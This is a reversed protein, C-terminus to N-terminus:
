DPTKAVQEEFLKHICADKPYDAQTNNWEVLLQHREAATFLPLNSIHEQPNAVIGELLTQFHRLMRTITATKFLDTNYELGGRIVESIEKLELTLDFMSRGNHVEIPTLTLEPLEKALRPTNQLVFMVQFLASRSLDREPKLEEVVKEFPVDQHTYAGLAVQRVRGLLKQFPPNGGFNTRLVLTNVFFGILEETEVQSRGAIPTGIIIDEHESYRYLLTQFAALLTMFLTVDEQESLTKLGETLSKSLELSQYDGQYTQVPPRPYDTPLPLLPPSGKLQQKWYSLQSKLVEGQLWERQWVAFDAYQITLTPLFSPKNASFAEYFAIMEGFLIDYSWGDIVIHHITMLLLYTEEGLRLLKVRFLPGTALDFPQEIQSTTQLQIEADQDESSFERLDIVSLALTTYPNVVQVPQGDVSPFTTRLVDHRQIISALSQELVTVSVHGTLYFAIPLNYVFSNPEWYELFWLREQSFSLPIFNIKKSKQLLLEALIKRKEELSLSLVE